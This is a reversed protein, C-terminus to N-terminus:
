DDFTLRASRWRMGGGGEMVYLVGGSLGRGFEESRKEM